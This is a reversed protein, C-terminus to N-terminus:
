LNERKLLHEMAAELADWRKYRRANDAAGRWGAALAAGTEPNRLIPELPDLAIRITFLVGGTEPLRRITQREM